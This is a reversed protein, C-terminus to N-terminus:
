AYWPFTAVLPVEVPCFLEVQLEALRHQGSVHVPVPAKGGAKPAIRNPGKAHEFVRAIAQIRGAHGAPHAAEITTLTSETPRTSSARSASSDPIM